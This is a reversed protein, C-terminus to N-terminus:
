AHRNSCQAWWLEGRRQCQLAADRHPVRIPGALNRTKDPLTTPRDPHSGPAVRVRLDRSRAAVVVTALRPQQRAGHWFAWLGGVPVLFLVSAVGLLIAEALLRGEYSAYFTAVVGGVQEEPWALDPSVYQSVVLVVVFLM